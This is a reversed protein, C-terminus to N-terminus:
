QGTFQAKRKEKFASTGERFDDSLTMLPQMVMEGALAEEFSQTEAAAFQRKIMKLSLTASQALEVALQRARALVEDAPCVESVLGLENAEEGSVFRGSYVLSKARISGLNRALLHVAGGDPALGIHRFAFQFRADPAAIVYDCGLVMSWGVGICVGRVAAIIPIDTRIVSRVMRHLIEVRAMTEAIGGGGMESVDAGACFNQGAGTLIVARISADDQVREFLKPLEVRMARSLANKKEPRDLTITAVPGDHEFSVTM